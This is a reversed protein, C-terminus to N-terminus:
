LNWGEVNTAHMVWFIKEMDDLFSQPDEETTVGTLTPPSLRMFQSVRM